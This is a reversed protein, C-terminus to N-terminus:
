NESELYTGEKGKRCEAPVKGTLDKFVRNFHSINGFGVMTAIQKIPLHSNELLDIAKDIRYRNIYANLTSGTEKHFIRSIYAPSFHMHAALDNLTIKKTYNQKIYNIITASCKQTFLNSSDLLNLLQQLYNELINFAAYWTPATSLEKLYRSTNLLGLLSSPINSGKLSNQINLLLNLLYIRCNDLPYNKDQFFQLLEEFKNQLLHAEHISLAHLIESELPYPYDLDTVQRSCFQQFPNQLTQQQAIAKQLSPIIVDEQAPKLLYDSAGYVIAQRAFDFEAYASNIVIITNPATRKISMTAELGSCEPMRVDIIVIDPAHQAVFDIAAFGNNVEGIM